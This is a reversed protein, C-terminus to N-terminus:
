RKIVVVKLQGYLIKGSSGPDAKFKYLLSFRRPQYAALIELGANSYTLGSTNTNPIPAAGAGSGASLTFFGGGGYPVGDVGIAIQISSSLYLYATGVATVQARAVGSFFISWGPGDPTLSYGTGPIERWEDSSAGADVDGSTVFSFPDTTAGPLIAEQTVKLKPITLTTGDFTFPYTIGGNATIAFLTADIVFRATNNPLVDIFWGGNHKTGNRDTGAFCAIRASVGDPASVAGMAFQGYATGADTRAYLETNTSAQASTQNSQATRLDSIATESSGVRTGLGSIQQSLAGETDIRAKESALFYARDSNTQAVLRDTRDAQASVADARAKVETALGAEVGGVRATIGDFQSATASQNDAVTKGLSTLTAEANATRATLSSLSSAFASDANARTQQESTLGAEVDGLRSIAGDLRVTAAADATVRASAETTLDAAVKGIQASLLTQSQVVAENTGAMARTVSAFQAAAEGQFSLLRTSVEAVARGVGDFNASTNTEARAINDQIAGIQRGLVDAFRSLLGPLLATDVTGTGAATVVNSIRGEAASIRQEATSLRTGQADVTALAAKQAIVAAQAGITQEASALRSTFGDIQGSTALTTITADVANLRQQVTSISGVLGSLDGTQVSGYLAIEGRLADVTVSLATQSSELRAVAAIRVRGEDSLVEIGAAAQRDKLLAIEAQLRLAVDTLTALQQRVDGILPDVFGARQKPDVALARRLADVRARADTAAVQAVHGAADAAAEIAEIKAKADSGFKDYPIPALTAIDVLAGQVLPAVTTFTTEKERGALGTSGYAVAILTVVTDSQRLPNRGATASGNSLPERTVGGDYSLWVAYSRAGRTPSLSWVVEIGTEIRECRARLTTINPLLPEALADPNVPTPGYVPEGLLDWIRRDDHLMEIRVHDADTPIAARVVYTEQLEELVGVVLTTPDQGDRALVDALRLRVPGDLTQVPRAELTAVDDAHLEVRRGGLGRLRLLGWERGLRTRISGYGWEGSLNADCDLTLIRGVAGAVGYVVPGTLFWLDSLVHDGPYILRGDWETVVTRSAGRFVSVLALWKAHRLAHDGDVIGPVKYRRPTRSPTGYSYRAEDPRKPDGDRDFEVIVDGGDGLLKFSAGGSDRVIQRRTLVHRPEDRSEDRVFSHVVGVKVPDARMPLLVTGAAEWYSSVEPLAGDFTDDAQLAGIYHLAKALDFGDPADLGYPNRVLDAAAWVAKRTPQETWTSGDWVPLIRTAHVSVESFAAFNLGPGARVQIVVETTARRIRVDDVLGVLEDWSAKNEAFDAAPYLNQGYVEYAGRAPLRVTRTYRLATAPSLVPGIADRLLEFPAGMAAGTVPDIRRAMFVVGAYGSTQRGASSTRSVSQYSWSLLAQDVTVGQPALRFWPTVAPNGGPRPLEQGAVDGSSVADGVALQSPTEYLFEIANGAVNFPAVLGAEETWFTAEGAKIAHIKFRGLGLTMRKTLVMTDGDYRFFDRQSLPPTSWCRGYLLPKRANARPVNGGGTVNYLTRNKAKAGAGSALQAAAGLAVGGVVMGVQIATALTGTTAGVGAGFVAAGALAPAAYPAIAILAISAIALGIGLASKGGGGNGSGGGGLPLLTLVVVDRPGVLTRRWHARLRVTADSPVLSAEGIANRHVSVIFRRGVPRHRAVITSLRRRRGPLRIREGRAQGAVNSFAVVTM